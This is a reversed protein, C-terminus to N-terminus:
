VTKKAWLFYQLATCTWIAFSTIVTAIWFGSSFQLPINYGDVHVVSYLKVGFAFTLIGCLLILTSFYCIFGALFTPLSTIHMLILTVVYGVLAFILLSFTATAINYNKKMDHCSGKEEHKCLRNKATSLLVIHFDTTYNRYTTKQYMKILTMSISVRNIQYRGDFDLWPVILATILLVIVIVLSIDNIISRYFLM